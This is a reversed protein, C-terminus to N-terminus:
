TINPRTRKVMTVLYTVTMHDRVGVKKLFVFRNSFLLFHNDSRGKVIFFDPKVRLKSIVKSSEALHRYTDLIGMDTRGEWERM